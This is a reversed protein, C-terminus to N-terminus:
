FSLVRRPGAQEPNVSSESIVFHLRGHAERLTAEVVEPTEGRALMFGLYRTGEPLPVLERGVSTTITLEEIGPVARAEDEGQVEELVGAKPIPLMMVGSAQPRGAPLFPLPRRLAHCLILEELSLDPSTETAFQLTRSCRGGISRAAVEIVWVGRDNVRVEAHMPGERLGLACAAREATDSVEAQIVGALRSPTVYITEEFFPGDLPDPKDFLALVRLRGDTLLGELAVERGPVFEEVLIKRAAEEKDPLGLRELLIAVRRFAAIFEAADNARIVGCSASLILPKVVCPYAVREALRDPDDHISYAAFLPVPIRHVQLLERMVQKNRAARVATVANHPLGLAESLAAALVVTADDVGIVLDIPHDKAYDMVTRIAATEDNFNLALLDPPRHTQPWVTAATGITVALHLRGAAELFADARYTTAPLLLLLRHNAPSPQPM